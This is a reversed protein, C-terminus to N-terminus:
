LDKIIEILEKGVMSNNDSKSMSHMNILEKSKIILFKKMEANLEYNLLLQVKNNEESNKIELDGAYQMKKEMNNIQTNFEFKKVHTYKEFNPYFGEDVLDDVIQNKLINLFQCKKEYFYLLTTIATGFLFRQVYAKPFAYYLALNKNLYVGRRM